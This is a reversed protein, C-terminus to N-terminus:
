SKVRKKGGMIYVGKKLPIGSLRRGSIDFIGAPTRGGVSTRGGVPPTLSPGQSPSLSPSEVSTVVENGAVAYSFRVVVPRHDGLWTENDTGEITGYTYDQEIWFSQPTLQLTNPVKPNLYLIKDVVEYRTYDTPDSGDTLDAMDTTPYIGDLCKEVWVDSVTLDNAILNTFNGVIDERTWRSNTDGIILKPRDHPTANVAEALQRWQAERSNTANTGGADMHLVYVDIPSTGEITVVYHRFGKKVYQNGDTNETSDWRTWSEDEANATSYKWILNLGDTDFPWSLGSFLGSVSLTSRVTGSGYNDSLASMLSGHYNFDESVGILDYGKRALYESILKTGESGPGDSNLTIYAVKNPLGDVNLASVTFMGRRVDHTAEVSLTADSQNTMFYYRGPALTMVEEVDTTSVNDLPAEGDTTCVIDTLSGTLAYDGYYPVDFYYWQNAVLPTVGHESLPVAMGDVHIGKCLLRVNDLKFFTQTETERGELWWEGRAEASIMLCEERGVTVNLSVPIGTNDGKGAITTWSGGATLTMTRGEWTAVVARLEYDGCPLGEVTQSVGLSPSWWQYANM